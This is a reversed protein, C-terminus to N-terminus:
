APEPQCRPCWFIGREKGAPGLEDRRIRTGCRRCSQGARGHVWLQRGKRVDGTTVQPARERNTLMLRHALSVVGNLDAVEAVRARPGIGRFFLTESRYITGIGALNRQDILAEAVTRTPDASMRRVAEEADWDPGLLDPGLHGVVREEAATDLLECIGLAFGVAQWDETTLVVRAEHGPRRWHSGHRYLHWSGEMKLHSHLSVGAGSPGRFRHLLHKGRSVVQDVTWSSLDATAHAPVRVDCGTLAQGALAQHMAHAARWVTDGEPM